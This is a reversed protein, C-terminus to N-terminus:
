MAGDTFNIDHHFAFIVKIKGTVTSASGNMGAQKASLSALYTFPNEKGGSLIFPHDFEDVLDIEEVDIAATSSTDPAVDEGQVSSSSVPGSGQSRSSALTAPTAPSNRVDPLLEDVEMSFSSLLIADNDERRIPVHNDETTMDAMQIDELHRAADSSFTSGTVKMNFPVSVAPTSPFNSQAHRRYVPTTITTASPLGTTIPHIEETASTAIGSTGAGWLM